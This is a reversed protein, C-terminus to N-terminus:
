LASTAVDGIRLITTFLFVFIILGAPRVVTMIVGNIGSLYSLHTAKAVADNARRDTPSTIVSKGPPQEAAEHAHM